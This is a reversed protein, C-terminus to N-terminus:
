NVSPENGISQPASIGTSKSNALEQTTIPLANGGAKTSELEEQRLIMFNYYIFKANIQRASLYRWYFAIFGIASMGGWVFKESHDISTFLITALAILCVLSLSRAMEGFDRFDGLGRSLEFAERILVSRSRKGAQIAEEGLNNLAALELDGVTNTADIHLTHNIKKGWLNHKSYCYKRSFWGQAPCSVHSSLDFLKVKKYCSSINRLM